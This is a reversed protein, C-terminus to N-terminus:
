KGGNIKFRKSYQIRDSGFVLTIKNGDMTRGTLISIYSAGQYRVDVVQGISIQMPTVNIDDVYTELEICNDWASSSLESYASETAAEIFSASTDEQPIATKIARVVPTIRNTDQTDWSRDPHVYFILYQNFNNANYVILKNTGVTSENYKLTKVVVNEVDASIKFPVTRKTITLRIIHDRFAPKVDIAIGYEKLARVIVDSYLNVVTQHIEDRESKIGFSWNLTQTISPDITVSIPLRQLTDSSTIYNDSLYSYLVSELTPRTEAHGTGQWTTDFLVDENFISLFSRYSVSTKFDGPSVGEVLGLFSYDDNKLRIFQGPTVLFTPPIDLINLTSSIYDDDISTVEVSANYAFTLDRNFFDVNYQQM